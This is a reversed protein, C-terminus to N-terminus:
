QILSGQIDIVFRYRVDSKLMREYATNVYDASVVEHMCTIDKKGCYDLMEQTEKIGGIPSAAIRQRKFLLNAIPLAPPESPIGLMVMTGDVKLLSLMPGLEHKASVTNIIGHLTGAAAEMQQSDKSVIFNDAGLVELAEQKKNPSTSIVTTNVGFSKLFKIAMHGLGGLGVVGVHMGAKDFGFKKIPSYTTIGACLLPAAADLPLTDPISLVFKENVLVYTSYGGYTMTGDVDPSNYTYTPGKSCMQEEKLVTCGECEQCSNVMCGVGVRDGVKFKTVQPGVETVIGAIEHGPVIPYKTGKWENKVQHLDSHCIGAHTIQIRVDTPLTERRNFRWLRLSGNEDFAAYGLCNGEGEGGQTAPRSFLAAFEEFTMSDKVQASSDAYQSLLRKLEEGKLEGAGGNPSVQALLAFARGNKRIDAAAPSQVRPM